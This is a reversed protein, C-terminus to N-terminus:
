FIRQAGPGSGGSNGPIHHTIVRFSGGDWTDWNHRLKRQRLEKLLAYYTAISDSALLVTVYNKEPSATELVKALWGGPELAQGLPVGDQQASIELGTDGDTWRIRQGRFYPAALPAVFGRRVTVMIPKRDGAEVGKALGSTQGDDTLQRMLEAEKKALEVLEAKAAALKEEWERILQDTHVNTETDAQLAASLEALLRALRDLEQLKKEHAEQADRIAQPLAEVAPSGPESALQREAEVTWQWAAVTDSQARTIRIAQTVGNTDTVSNLPEAHVTAMIGTMGILLQTLIKM